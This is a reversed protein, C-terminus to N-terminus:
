GCARGRARMGTLRRVWGRELAHAFIAAGLIGALHPRRESWDLCPRCVPRNSRADGDVGLIGLARMGVRGAESLADSPMFQGKDAGGKSQRM